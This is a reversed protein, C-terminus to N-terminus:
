TFAPKAVPIDKAVAAVAPASVVPPADPEEINIELPEDDNM